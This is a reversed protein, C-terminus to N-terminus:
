PLHMSKAVVYLDDKGWFRGILINRFFYVILRRLSFPRDSHYGSEITIWGSQELLKKLASIPYPRVHTPDRWFDGAARRLNAINPTVLVILAGPEVTSHLLKFLEKVESPSFHEVVHSAFCGDFKEKTEKLYDFFDACTISDLGRSEAERCLKKDIEVGVSEVGNKNLLEIFFGQGSGLELVRKKGIFYKEFPKFYRKAIEVNRQDPIHM